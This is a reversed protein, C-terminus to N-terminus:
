RHDQRSTPQHCTACQGLGYVMIQSDTVAIARGVPVLRGCLTHGGGNHRHVEGYRALLVAVTSAPQQSPDRTTLPM